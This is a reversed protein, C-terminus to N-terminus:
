DVKLKNKVANIMGNVLVKERERRVSAEAFKKYKVANYIGPITFIIFFVFYHRLTSSPVLGLILYMIVLTIFTREVPTMYRVNLLYFFLSLFYGVTFIVLSVAGYAVGIELFLNHPDVACGYCDWFARVSNQYNLLDGFGFFLIEINSSTIATYSKIISWREMSSNDLAYGTFANSYMAIMLLGGAIVGAIFIFRLAMSFKSLFVDYFRISILLLLAVLFGRSGIYICIACTFVLIVSYSLKHIVNYDDSLRGVLLAVYIMMAVSFDNYNVFIASVMFRDQTVVSLLEAEPYRYAMINFNFVVELLAMFAIVSFSFFMIKEIVIIYREQNNLVVANYFLYFILLQAFYAAPLSSNPSQLFGIFSAFLSVAFFLHLIFDAKNVVIKDRRQLILINTLAAIFLLFLAGPIRLFLFVAVWLGIVSVKM